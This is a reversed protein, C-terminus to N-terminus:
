ISINLQELELWYGKMTENDRSPGFMEIRPVPMTLNNSVIFSDLLNNENEKGNYFFRCLRIFEDNHIISYISDPDCLEGTEMNFAQLDIDSVKGQRM